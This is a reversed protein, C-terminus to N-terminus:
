RWLTTRYCCIHCTAITPFLVICLDSVWLACLMNSYVSIIMLSWVEIDHMYLWVFLPCRNPVVCNSIVLGVALMCDPCVVISTASTKIVDQLMHYNNTEVSCATVLVACLLLDLLNSLYIHQRTGIIRGSALHVYFSIYWSLASHYQSLVFTRNSRFGHSTAM